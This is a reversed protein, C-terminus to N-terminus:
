PRRPSVRGAPRERPTIGPAPSLRANRLKPSEPARPPRMRKRIAAVMTELGPLVRSERVGEELLDIGNPISDLFRPKGMRMGLKVFAALAQLNRQVGALTFAEYFDGFCREEPAGRARLKAHFAELLARREPASM